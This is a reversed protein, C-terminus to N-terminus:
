VFRRDYLATMPLKLHLYNEPTETDKAFFPSTWNPNEVRVVMRTEEENQFDESKYVLSYSWLMGKIIRKLWIQNDDDQARLKYAQDILRVIYQKLRNESYLVDFVSVHIGINEECLEVDDIAIKQIGIVEGTKTRKYAYNGILYESNGNKSFCLVYCKEKENCIESNDDVFGCLIDQFQPSTHSERIANKLVRIIHKGENKDDFLDARTLRLDLYNERVIKDISDIGTYHFLELCPEIEVDTFLVSYYYLEQLDNTSFDCRMNMCEGFCEQM